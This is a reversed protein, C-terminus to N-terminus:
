DEYTVALAAHEMAQLGSFIDDRENPAVHLREWLEPLAAYNLGVPGSPGYLWQTGMALFMRVTPRNEPWVLVARGEFHAPTLGLAAAEEKSPLRAHM